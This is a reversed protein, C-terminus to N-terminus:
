CTFGTRARPRIGFRSGGIHCRTSDTEATTRGVRESPHTRVPHPERGVELPQRWALRPHIKAHLLAFLAHFGALVDVASKGFPIPPIDDDAIHSAALHKARLHLKWWELKVWQEDEAQEIIHDQLAEAGFARPTGQQDYYVITPIKCDGGVHEQAPYRTVGQIKPVEGPDLISYSIGSYTTGVDFAVVLGRLRGHYPKRSLM